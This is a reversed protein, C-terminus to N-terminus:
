KRRQSDSKYKSSTKSRTSGSTTRKQLEISGVVKKPKKTKKSDFDLKIGDSKIITAEKMRVVSATIIFIAFIIFVKLLDQWVIVRFMILDYTVGLMGGALLQQWVGSESDLLDNNAKATIMVFISVLLLFPLLAIFYLSNLFAETISCIVLGFSAGAIIYLIPLRMLGLHPGDKPSQETYKELNRKFVMAILIFFTGIAIFKFINIFWDYRIRMLDFALGFMFGELLISYSKAGASFEGGVRGIVRATIYGSLVLIIFSPIYYQLALFWSVIQNFAFAMAVGSLLLWIVGGNPRRM